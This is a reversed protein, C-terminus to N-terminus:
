KSCTAISLATFSMGVVFGAGLSVAGFAASWIGGCIGIGIGCVWQRASARTVVDNGYNDIIEIYDEGPNYIGSMVPENLENYATFLCSTSTLLSDIVFSVSFAVSGDEALVNALAKDYDSNVFIEARIDSTPSSCLYGESFTEAVETVETVETVRTGNSSSIPTLEILNSMTPVDKTTQECSVFSVITLAAMAAFFHKCNM